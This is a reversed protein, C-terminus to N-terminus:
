RRVKSLELVMHHQAVASGDIRLSDPETGWTVFGLSEYLAKAATGEASVSLSVSDVGTWGRAHHVCAEVVARGFGRGRCDHCVYVGWISSRHRQKTRTERIIGAMAVLRDPRDSDAIAFVARDPDALHAEVAALERFPCDDPSAGFATPEVALAERRLAHLGPADEHTLRRAHIM